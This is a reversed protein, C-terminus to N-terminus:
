ILNSKVAAIFAVFVAKETAMVEQIHTHTHTYTHTHTHSHTHIHTYVHLVSFIKERRRARRQETARM